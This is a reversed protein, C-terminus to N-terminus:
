SKKPVNFESFIAELKILSQAAIKATSFVIPDGDYKEITLKDSEFAVNKINDFTFNKPLFKNIKINGGIKNWQFYNRYWFIKSHRIM